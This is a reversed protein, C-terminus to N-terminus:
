FHAAIILFGLGIKPMFDEFYIKKERNVWRMQIQPYKHCLHPEVVHVSTNLFTTDSSQLACKYM